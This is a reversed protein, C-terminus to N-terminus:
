NTSISVVLKPEIKKSTISRTNNNNKANSAVALLIIFIFLISTGMSKQITPQKPHDNNLTFSKASKIIHMSPKLKVNYIKAVVELVYPPIIAEIFYKANPVSPEKISYQPAMLINSTVDVM